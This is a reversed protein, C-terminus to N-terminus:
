KKTVKFETRRNLARGAPNDKGNPLENPAVPRTEGYGKSTMRSLPIGKGVLYDVCSKARRNSLDLNYADKGKSDTHASLEIEITPNDIMITYLYDLKGKSDETLEAKNFEYLVDKLVIPKDIEYPILCLEPSFLTDRQAMQEYSFAINKSFYKEKEATLKFGRNSNVQFLYKGMEDTTVKLQQTSDSLTITADKLPKMTNCDLLTGKIFLVERKVFFIELCCLSERDSSIYGESDTNNTPTFYLDDKSSNFPYGLNRAESWKTFDGESEFFDFGGMGVRGNSSYLLKKAANNYYPAQEDEPTNIVNGMNVAVGLSGDARIAAYWLDYKGTGGPRDSSFILYRGDSTVFPQMSNFGKVNVQNGLEIPESWDKGVGPTANLQYIKKNGTTTWSTVYAVKGNPHFAPAASERDKGDVATKKISINDGMPNGSAVYVANLFPNEKKAVKANKDTLIEKRGGTGVPRSSTFYFNGGRVTPTYNSGKDNINNQLRSLKFLRPYRLEHLAFKCSAIETKAKAAYSDKVKYRDLFENFMSIAEDFKQNSRMTEAYWFTGLIYKPNTFDKAVAYWKEADISNKYLRLSEALQFTCYEFDERKPSEEKIKSEFGYPVVFGVSDASIQLAKKYYEAAAYYEKNQFYVDAVRKSNTVFQAHAASALLCFILLIKTKMLIHIEPEIKIKM